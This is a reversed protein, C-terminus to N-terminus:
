TAVVLACINKIPARRLYFIEKLTSYSDALGILSLLFIGLAFVIITTGLGWISALNM